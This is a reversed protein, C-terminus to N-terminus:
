FKWSFHFRNGATERMFCSSQPKCIQHVNSPLTTRAVKTNLSQFDRQFLTIKGTFRIEYKNRDFVRNIVTGVKRSFHVM